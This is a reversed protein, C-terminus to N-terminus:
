GKKLMERLLRYIFYEITKLKCCFLTRQIKTEKNEAVIYAVEGEGEIEM